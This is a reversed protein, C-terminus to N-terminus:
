LKCNLLPPVNVDEPCVIVRPLLLRVILAEPVTVSPGITSVDPLIEIVEPLASVIELAREMLPLPIMENTVSVPLELTARFALTEVPEDPVMLTVATPDPVIVRVPATVRVEPVTLRVAAEPAIPEDPV